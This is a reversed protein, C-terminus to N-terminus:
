EPFDFVGPQVQENVTVETFKVTRLLAGTEDYTEVTKPFKIGGVNLSDKETMTLGDSSVTALLEGTNPDFYRIYYLDLPYAFNVKRASKGNYDVIGEDTITAGRIKNPGNFFNLNEVANAMLRKVQTPRLVQVLKKTKDNPDYSMVYGEYGNVATENVVDGRMERLLQRNPKDFILELDSMKEGSPSIVVGKYHIAEVDDLVSEPGLQTRAKQLFQDIPEANLAGVSSLLVFFAFNRFSIMM